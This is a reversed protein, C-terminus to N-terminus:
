CKINLHYKLVMAMAIPDDDSEITAKEVLQFNLSDNDQYEVRKSM